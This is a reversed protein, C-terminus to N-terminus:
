RCSRGRFPDACGFSLLGTSLRPWHSRLQRLWPIQWHPGSLVFQIAWCAALSAQRCHFGLWSDSQCPFDAVWDVQFWFESPHFRPLIHIMIGSISIPCFPTWSTLALDPCAHQLVLFDSPIL